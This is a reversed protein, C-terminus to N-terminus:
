EVVRQNDENVRIRTWHTRRLDTGLGDLGVAFLEMSPINESVLRPSSHLREPEMAITWQALTVEGLNPVLLDLLSVELVRLRPLNVLLTECFSPKCTGITISLRVPSLRQVMPLHWRYLDLKKLSQMVPIRSRQLGLRRGDLWSTAYCIELTQLNSLRTLGEFVDIPDLDGHAMTVSLKRLMPNVQGLMSLARHTLWSGLSLESLSSLSAV